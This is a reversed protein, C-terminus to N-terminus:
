LESIIEWYIDGSYPSGTMNSSIYRVQGGSTVDFNVEADGSVGSVSIDCTSSTVNRVINIIGSEALETSGAIRRIMYFMSISRRAPPLLLGVVNTYSTVNNAISSSFDFAPEIQTEINYLFTGSYPSGTMNSSTYALNNGVMTFEVQADSSIGYNVLTWQGLNSNYHGSLVGSEVLETSGAIRTIQYHIKFASVSIPNFSIGLVAPSTVNNNISDAASPAPVYIASAGLDPNIVMEQNSVAKGVKILWFDTNTPATTTYQSGDWYVMEGNIFSGGQILSVPVEVKGSLLINVPNGASINKQVVGIYEMRNDNTPDLRYIQGATRGPDGQANGKSVYVPEIANLNEGALVKIRNVVGGVGGIVKWRQADTDYLLYITNENEIDIVDDTGTIIRRTLTTGTDNLLQITQGTRNILILHGASIPSSLSKEYIGEISVLSSNTLVVISATPDLVANSGTLTSNVEVENYQIKTLQANEYLKNTITQSADVTLIDSSNPLLNGDIAVGSGDRRLVANATGNKLKDLAISVNPNDDTDITKNKLTQVDETTVVTHSSNPIPNGSIVTGTSDRKLVRDANALDVKLSGLGIDQLTNDDGDIIKNTLIAAHSETVVASESTGDHYHLKGDSDNVRLEGKENIPSTTTPTIGVGKVFKRIDQSM